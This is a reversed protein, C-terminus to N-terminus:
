REQLDGSVEIEDEPTTTTTTTSSLEKDLTLFEVGNYPNEKETVEFTQETVDVTQSKGTVNGEEDLSVTTTTTTTTLSLTGDENRTGSVNVDVGRVEKALDKVGTSAYKNFLRGAKSFNYKVGTQSLSSNGSFTPRGRSQTCLWCGPSVAQRGTSQIDQFGKLPDTPVMGDPDIFRVPNDFAYNHPSHRRMLDAAPDVNLFRGLEPDYNRAQYDYWSTLKQEEFGNYKYLNEPSM